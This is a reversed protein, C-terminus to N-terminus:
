SSDSVASRSAVPGISTGTVTGTISVTDGSYPKGDGTTGTGATEAAQLTPTGSVVAVTTANYIKSAPVSLGSMTLAKATITAAAPRDSLNWLRAILGHEIGDEHPKLAWLLVDHGRRSLQHAIATGWSGGGFVSLRM